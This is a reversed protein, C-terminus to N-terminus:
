QHRPQIRSKAKAAAATQPYTETIYRYQEIVIQETSSHKALMDAAALLRAARASQSIQREIEAFSLQAEKPKIDIDSDLLFYSGAAILVSA